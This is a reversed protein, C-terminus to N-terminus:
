HGLLQRSIEGDAALRHGNGNSDIFLRWQGQKQTRDLSIWLYCSEVMPTSWKAFFQQQSKFQPLEVGQPKESTLTPNSTGMDGVIRQAERESHYQLWQEEQAVTTSTFILVSIGVVIQIYIESRM